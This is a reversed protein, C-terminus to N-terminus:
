LKWLTQPIANCGNYYFIIKTKFNTVFTFLLDSSDGNDFDADNPCGDLNFNLVSSLNNNMKLDCPIDIAFTCHKKWGKGYHKQPNFVSFSV